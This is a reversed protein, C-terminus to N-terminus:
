MGVGSSNAESFEALESLYRKLLSDVPLALARAIERLYGRLYVPPPLAEVEFREIAELYRLGIRTRLSLERLSLRRKRRYRALLRGCDEDAALLAASPPAAAESAPTWCHGDAAGEEPAPRGEDLAVQFARYTRELESVITSRTSRDLVVQTIASDRRYGEWLRRYQARMDAATAESSLGMWGTEDGEGRPRLRDFDRLSLLRKVIAEAQVGLGAASSLPEGGEGHRLHFWRRDDYDLPGLYRPYHGLRRWLAHCLVEGLERESADRCGNLVLYSRGLGPADSAAVRAQVAEVYPLLARVSWSEPGTLLLPVDATVLVDLWFPDPGAPLDIIVLREEVRRLRDVFREASAGALAQPGQVGRALTLLGISDDDRRSIFDQLHSGPQFLDTRPAPQSRGLGAALMPAGLVGDVLLTPVARRALGRALELAVTTRGVGGSGAGIAVITSPELGSGEPRTKPELSM